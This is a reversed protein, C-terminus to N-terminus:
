AYKDSDTAGDGQHPLGNLTYFLLFLVAHCVLNVARNSNGKRSSKHSSSGAAKFKSVISAM